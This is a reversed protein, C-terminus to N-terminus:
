FEGGINTYISISSVRQQDFVITVIQPM